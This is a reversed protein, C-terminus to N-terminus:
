NGNHNKGEWVTEIINKLGVTEIHGALKIGFGIVCFLTIIASVIYIIGWIRVKQELEKITAM